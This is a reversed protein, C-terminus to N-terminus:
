VPQPVFQLRQGTAADFLHFDAADAAFRVTAGDPIAARGPLRALLRIGDGVTCAAVTDAGLYEAHLVTAPIGTDALHLAEPRIGALAEAALSPV